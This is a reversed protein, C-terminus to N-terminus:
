MSSHAGEYPIRYILMQRLEEPINDKFSGDKNIFEKAHAPAYAEIYDISSVKGNADVDGKRIWSLSTQLKTLEPSADVAEQFAKANKYD